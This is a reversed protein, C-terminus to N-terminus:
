LELYPIKFTSKKRFIQINAFMTLWITTNLCQNVRMSHPIWQACKLKTHLNSQYQTHLNTQMPSIIVEELKSALLPMFPMENHLWTITLFNAWFGPNWGTNLPYKLKIIVGGEKFNQSWPFFDSSFFRWNQNNWFRLSGATKMVLLSSHTEPCNEWYKEHNQSHHNYIYRLVLERLKQSCHSWLITQILMLPKIGNRTGACCRNCPVLFNRNIEWM